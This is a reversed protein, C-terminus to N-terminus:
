NPVSFLLLDILLDLSDVQVGRWLSAFVRLFFLLFCFSELSSSVFQKFTRLDVFKEVM